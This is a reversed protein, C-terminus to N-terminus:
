FPYPYFGKLNPASFWAALTNPLQSLIYELATNSNPGLTHYTVADQNIRAIAAQIIPIWDCVFTGSISGAKEDTAPHDFNLGSATQQAYLENNTKNRNGEVISNGTPTQIFLYGHGALNATAGLGYNLGSIGRYELTITCPSSTSAGDGPGDGGGVPEPGCGADMAFEPHLV